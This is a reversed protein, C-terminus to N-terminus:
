YGFLSKLWNVIKEFINMEPASKETTPQPETVNPQVNVEVKAPANLDTLIFSASVRPIITKFEIQLNKRAVTLETKSGARVTDTSKCDNNKCITFTAVDPAVFAKNLATIEYGSVITTQGLALTIEEGFSGTTATVLGTANGVLYVGALTLVLGVILENM